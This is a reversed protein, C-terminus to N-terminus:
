SRKGLATKVRANRRLIVVMVVGLALTMVLVAALRLPHNSARDAYVFLVLGIIGLLNLHEYGGQALINGAVDDEHVRQMIVIRRTTAPNNGRTSMVENWWNVVGTRVTDSEAERVNHPDDCVILDGGEGTNAGGVSTALRYGRKDNEFRTKENQDTTIRYVSGWQSQYWPSEILRRTALADRTSLAQAYSSFLWRLTPNRAWLWAPFMVSVITSKGFRPPVNILLNKIQLSAVAELHDCIADLHWNAQFLEAPVVIPWAAEVFLRLSDYAAAALLADPNNQQFLASVSPTARGVTPTLAQNPERSSRANASRSRKRRSSRDM